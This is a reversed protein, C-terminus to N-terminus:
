LWGWRLFLVDEGCFNGLWGPRTTFSKDWYSHHKQRSPQRWRGTLCVHTIQAVRQSVFQLTVLQLDFLDNWVDRKLHSETSPMTQLMGSIAAPTFLSSTPVISEFCCPSLLVRVLCEKRIWRSSVPFISNGLHELGPWCDLSQTDTQRHWDPRKSPFTYLDGFYCHGPVPFYKRMWSFHYFCSTYEAPSCLTHEMYFIKVRGLDKKGGWTLRGAASSSSSVPCMFNKGLSVVVCVPAPTATGWWVWFQGWEDHELLSSAEM